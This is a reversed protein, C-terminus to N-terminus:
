IYADAVRDGIGLLNADPRGHVLVKLYRSNFTLSRALVNGTIHLKSCGYSRFPLTRLYVYM